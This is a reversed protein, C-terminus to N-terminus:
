QNYITNIHLTDGEARLPVLQLKSRSIYYTNTFISDTIKLIDSRNLYLTDNKITYDGQYADSGHNWHTKAVFTENKYLTLNGGYRVPSTTEIEMIPNIWFKGNGDGSNLILKSLSLFSILTVPVIFDAEKRGKIALYINKTIWILAMILIIVAIFYFVFNTYVGISYDGVPAIVWVGFLCLSIFICYSISIKM